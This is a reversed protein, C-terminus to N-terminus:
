RSPLISPWLAKLTAPTNAASLDFTEPLDRLEQKQTEIGSVTLPDESAMASLQHRDLELRDFEKNRAARIRSMHIARADAMNIQVKAPGDEWADRFTRDKPLESDPCKRCSMAAHGPVSGSAIAELTHVQPDFHTTMDSGDRSLEFMTKTLRLTADGESKSIHIIGLRGDPMTTRHHM